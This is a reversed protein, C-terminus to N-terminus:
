VIGGRHKIKKDLEFCASVSGSMGQLQDGWLDCVKESPILKHCTFQVQFIILAIIFWAPQKDVPAEIIIINKKKKKKKHNKNKSKSM